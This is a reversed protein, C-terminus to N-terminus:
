KGHTQKHVESIVIPHRSKEGMAIVRRGIERIVVM